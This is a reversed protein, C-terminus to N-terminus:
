WRGGARWPACRRGSRRAPDRGSRRPRRGRWGSPRGPGNRRGRRRTGSSPPGARTVDEEDRHVAARGAAGQGGVGGPRSRRSGNRDGHRIWTGADNGGATPPDAVAARRRYARITSPRGRRRPGIRTDAQATDAQAPSTLKRLAARLLAAMDRSSFGALRHRADHEGPDPVLALASENVIVDCVVNEAWASDDLGLLAQRYLAQRYLTQRYRAAAYRQYIDQSRASGDAGPSGVTGTKGLGLM